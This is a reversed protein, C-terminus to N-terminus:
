LRKWLRRLLKCGRGVDELMRLCWLRKFYKWTIECGRWCVEADVVVMCGDVSAPWHPSRPWAAADRTAVSHRQGALSAAATGLGCEVAPATVSRWDIGLVSEDSRATLSATTTNMPAYFYCCGWRGCCLPPRPTPRTSRTSPTCHWTHCLHNCTGVSAKCGGREQTRLGSRRRFPSRLPPSCHVCVRCHTGKSRWRGRKERGEGGGGGEGGGVGEGGGAGEGGGRGRREEKERRKEERRGKRRGKWKGERREEEEEKKKKEMKEKEEEGCANVSLPAHPRLPRLTRGRAPRVVHHGSASVAVGWWWWISSPRALSLWGRGLVQREDEATLKERERQRTTESHTHRHTQTHTQPDTYTHTNTHRSANHSRKTLTISTIRKKLIRTLWLWSSM